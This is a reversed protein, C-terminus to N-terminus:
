LEVSFLVLKRGCLQVRVYGEEALDNAISWLMEEPVIAFEPYEKSLNSIEISGELNVCEIIRQKLEDFYIPHPFLAAM